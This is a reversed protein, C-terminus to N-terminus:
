PPPPFGAYRRRHYLLPLVDPRGDGEVVLGIVMTHDGGDVTRLVECALHAVTHETLVPAGARGPRWSVGAFKDAGRGAFREALTTADAALVNVCFAGHGLVATLTRSREGMCVLMLPPECSLSCVAGSTMGMPAGLVNLSTVVSVGTPLAAALPLFQDAPLGRPATAPRSPANSVPAEVARVFM